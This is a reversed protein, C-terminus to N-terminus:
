KMYIKLIDKLFSIFKEKKSVYEEVDIESVRIFKAGLENKVSNINSGSRGIIHKIEPQPAFIDLTKTLEKKDFIVWTDSNKLHIIKLSSDSKSVGEKIAELMHDDLSRNFDFYFIQSINFAINRIDKM